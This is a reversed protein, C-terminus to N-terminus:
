PSTPCTVGRSILTVLASAPNGEVVLLRMWRAAKLAYVGPQTVRLPEHSEEAYHVEVVTGPAMKVDAEPRAMDNTLIWPGAAAGVLAAKRTAM